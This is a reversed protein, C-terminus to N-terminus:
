NQELTSDPDAAQEFTKDVDALTSDFRLHQVVELQLVLRKGLRIQDGDQLVVEGGVQEGNVFTGYTPSKEAGSSDKGEVKSLAPALTERLYLKDLREEIVAHHRSVPSDKPFSLENDGGRGLHIIEQNMLLRKSILAPDDSEKVIFVARTDSGTAIADLTYSETYVSESASQAQAWALARKEDARRRALFVGFVIVVLLLAGGLGLILWLSLPASEAEDAPQSQTVAPPVATAPAVRNVSVSARALELENAGQAAASFTLAGDPYKASDVDMEYPASDDMGLVTEGTLFIVRQIPDGQGSLSVSLKITGSVQAGEIPSLFTIRWPLAPLIFDRTDQDQAGLYEAKVAVTHAGPASNSVYHLVYQLRLQESLRAFLSDLKTSDPSYQYHGGTLAALRMLGSEDIRSGLGITYIPVRLSGRTAIDTVDDLTFTSCVAGSATEDVGDTLLIISRRGQPLSATMQAAQYAADYLCTGANPVAEVAAIKKRAAIHDTSFDAVTVVEQNFTIVAVQDQPNLGAVFADAAKRADAIEAGVMTGSTDLVLVINIPEDTALALSDVPYSKSDESVTMNSAQLDKIPNGSADLASFFVSVDYALRDALPAGDVYHVTLEIKNQASSAAPFALSLLAIALFVLGAHRVTHRPM